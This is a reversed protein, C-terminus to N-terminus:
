NNIIRANLSKLIRDENLDYYIEDAIIKMNDERFEANGEMLILDKAPLLEIRNAKGKHTKLESNIKEFNANSFIVKTEQQPEQSIEISSSIIELDKSEFLATESSSISKDLLNGSLSITKLSFTKGDLTFTTEVNGNLKINKNDLNIRAEKSKIYLRKNDLQYTEYLATKFEIVNNPIFADNTASFTVPSLAIFSLGISISM